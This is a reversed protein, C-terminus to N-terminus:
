SDGQVSEDCLRVPRRRSRAAVRPRNTRGRAAAPDGVDAWPQTVQPLGQRDIAVKDSRQEGAATPLLGCDITTAPQGLARAADAALTESDAHFLLRGCTNRAIRRGDEVGIAGVANGVADLLVSM